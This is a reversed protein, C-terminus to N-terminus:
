VYIIFATCMYRDADARDLRDFISSPPMLEDPRKFMIYYADSEDGQYSDDEDDPLSDDQFASSLFSPFSLPPPSSDFNM